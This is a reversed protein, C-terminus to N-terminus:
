WNNRGALAVKRKYDEDEAVMKQHVAVLENYRMQNESSLLKVNQSVLKTLEDMGRMFDKRFVQDGIRYMNDYSSVHSVVSCSMVVLVFAIALVVVILIFSLNQTHQLSVM